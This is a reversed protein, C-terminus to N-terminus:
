KRETFNAKFILFYSISTVWFLCHEAFLFRCKGWGSKKVNEGAGVKNKSMARPQMGGDMCFVGLLREYRSGADMSQPLVAM